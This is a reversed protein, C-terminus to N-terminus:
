LSIKGGFLAIKDPHALFYFLKNSAVWFCGALSHISVKYITAGNGPLALRPGTAQQLSLLGAVRGSDMTGCLSGPASDARTTSSPHKPWACYLMQCRRDIVAPLTGSFCGMQRDQQGPAHNSTFAGIWWTLLKSLTNM